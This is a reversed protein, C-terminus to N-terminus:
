DRTSRRRRTPRLARRIWARADRLRRASPARSRGAPRVTLEMTVAGDDPDDDPVPHAGLRRMWDVMRDNSRAIVGRLARVDGAVATECLVALLAVGLGRGQVDDVITLSFEAVDPENRLRVWRGVGLGNGDADIAGWAVHDLQDVETFYSLQDPSLHTVPSLFRHTRAEQSLAEFGAHLIDRDDPTVPRLTVETGDDLALRLAM